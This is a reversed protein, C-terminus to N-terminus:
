FLDLVSPPAELKFQQFQELSNHGFLLNSATGSTPWPKFLTLMAAAYKESVVAPDRRPVSHGILVPLTEGEFSVTLKKNLTVQNSFSPLQIQRITLTLPKLPSATLPNMLLTLM